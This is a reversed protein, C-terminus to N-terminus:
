YMTMIERIVLYGAPGLLMGWLGFLSLGIYIAILTELGTIGLQTGMLHAEAFERFFYCVGYITLLAAATMYEKQFLSVAAWPVLVTGTGLIPLMDVFGLGIGAAVPYPNGLIWLSFICIAIVALMILLQSKFYAGGALSLRRCLATVETGFTSAQQRRKLEDMETVSLVCAIVSVTFITMAKLAWKVAPVSVGAMAPMLKEEIQTHVFGRAQESAGVLVGRPLSLAQEAQRCCSFVAQEMGATIQPLKETLLRLQWILRVGLVYLVVGAVTTEVALLVGASLAEPIRFRKKLWVTTRRMRAALFWGACFPLVAPLVFRFGLYVLGASLAFIGGRILKEKKIEGMM